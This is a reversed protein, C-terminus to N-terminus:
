DFSWHLSQPFLNWRYFAALVMCFSVSLSLYLFILAHPSTLLRGRIPLIPPTSTFSPQRQRWESDGELWLSFPCRRSWAGLRSNSRLVGANPRYVQIQFYGFQNRNAGVVQWASFPYIIRDVDLRCTADRGSWNMEASEEWIGIVVHQFRSPKSLAFTFMLRRAYKTKGCKITKDGGM